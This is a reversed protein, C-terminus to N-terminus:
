CNESSTTACISHGDAAPKQVVGSFQRQMSVHYRGGRPVKQVKPVQRQTVVPVDVVKDIFADLRVEVARQVKQIM